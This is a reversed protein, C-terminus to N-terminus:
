RGVSDCKIELGREGVTNISKGKIQCDTFDAIFAESKVDGLIKM